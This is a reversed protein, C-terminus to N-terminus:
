LELMKPKVYHVNLQRILLTDTRREGPCALQCRGQLRAAADEERPVDAPGLALTGPM